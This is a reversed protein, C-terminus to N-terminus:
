KQALEEELNMLMSSYDEKVRNMNNELVSKKERDVEMQRELEKIENTV